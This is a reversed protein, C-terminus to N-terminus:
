PPKEDQIQFDKFGYVVAFSTLCKLADLDVFTTATETPCLDERFFLSSVYLFIQTCLRQVDTDKMTITTLLVEGEPLLFDFSFGFAHLRHRQQLRPPRRVAQGM